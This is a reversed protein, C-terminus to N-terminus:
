MDDIEAFGTHDFRVLTGGEPHTDLAYVIETGMWQDPGAVVTQALRKGAEATDVRLEWAVPSAPFAVQHAGGAGEGIEAATTFWGTVGDPTTIARYVTEADADIRIQLAIDAMPVPREHPARRTRRAM